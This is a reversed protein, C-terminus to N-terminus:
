PMTAVNTSIVMWWSTQMGRGGNALLCTAGSDRAGCSSMSRVISSWCRSSRSWPMRTNSEQEQRVLGAWRQRCITTSCWPIGSKRGNRGIRRMDLRIQREVYERTISQELLHYENILRKMSKSYYVSM